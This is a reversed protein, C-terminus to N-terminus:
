RQGYQVAKAVHAPGIQPSGELDAVTHAVQPCKGQATVSVFM